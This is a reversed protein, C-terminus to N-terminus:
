SDVDGVDFRFVAHFISGNIGELDAYVTYHAPSSRLALTTEGPALSCIEADGGDWPRIEVVVDSVPPRSFDLRVQDVDYGFIGSPAEELAEEEAPIWADVQGNREEDIACISAQIARNEIGPGTFVLDLAPSQTLLTNLWDWDVGGPVYYWAANSPDEFPFIRVRSTGLLVALTGGPTDYLLTWDPEDVDFSYSGTLKRLELSALYDALADRDPCIFDTIRSGSYLKASLLGEATLGQQEILLEQGTGGGYALAVYGSSMCLVFFLLGVLLAGSHKKRPAIIQRLRYRLSAATASLCTTFGREDGATTLLLEAYRRRTREDSQLLVTEDCSLELDEASKRRAIWMLPNFWCLATCFLLFFKSMADVRGIHILEHRLILALAEPDYAKDPLVVRTTRPVLGISLPTVVAPSVMLKFKPKKFSADALERDWIALIEPDTLAVASKLIRRRFLLHSVIGWTLVLCVGALWLVVLAWLWDDGPSPIIWRPMPLEMFSYNTIYLYNPTMWLLACARASIWRRLLPLAALLVLHYLSIQLLIHFSISFIQELADQWGYLFLFLLAWCTLMAPLLYVPLYPLYRQRDSPVNEEGIEGDYRTFVMWAFVCGFIASVLGRLLLQGSM